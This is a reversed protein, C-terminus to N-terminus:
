PPTLACACPPRDVQSVEDAGYARGDAPRHTTPEGPGVMRRDQRRRRFMMMEEWEVLLGTAPHGYYEGRHTGRAHMRAVAKDGEVVLDDITYHVDPFVGQLWLFFQRANEPGRVPGDEEPSVQFTETVFEDLHDLSWRNVVDDFLRRVLARSVEPLM